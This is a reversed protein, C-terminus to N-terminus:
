LAFSTTDFVAIHFSFDDCKDYLKTLLKGKGSIMSPTLNLSVECYIHHILNGFSRKNFTLVDGIYCFNLDFSRALREKKQILDAILDATYPHLFLDALLPACYTGIPFDVM